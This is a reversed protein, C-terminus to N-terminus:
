YQRNWFGLFHRYFGRRQRHIATSRNSQIFSQEGAALGKLPVPNTIDGIYRISSPAIWSGHSRRNIPLPAAGSPLPLAGGAQYPSGLATLLSDAQCVHLRRVSPSPGRGGSISQGADHQDYGAPRQRYQVGPSAGTGLDIISGLAYSNAAATVSVGAAEVVVLRWM